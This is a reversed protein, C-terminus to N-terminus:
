RGDNNPFLVSSLSELNKNQFRPRKRGEGGECPPDPPTNRKEEGRMQSKRAKYGAHKRRNGTIRLYYVPIGPTLTIEVLGVNELSKVARRFRDIRCSLMKALYSGPKPFQENQWLLEESRERFALAWLKMYIGFAAESVKLVRHDSLAFEVELKCWLGRSM